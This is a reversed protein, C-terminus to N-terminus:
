PKGRAKHAWYHAMVRWHKARDRHWEASEIGKRFQDRSEQVHERVKQRCEKAKKRLEGKTYLSM